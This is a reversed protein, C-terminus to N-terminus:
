NEKYLNYIEKARDEDLGTMEIIEHMVENTAIEDALGYQITETATLAPLPSTFIISEVM